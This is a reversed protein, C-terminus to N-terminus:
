GPLTSSCYYMVDGTFETHSRLQCYIPWSNDIGAYGLKPLYDNGCLFALLVFDLGMHFTQNKPSSIKGSSAQVTSTTGENRTKKDTTKRRAELMLETRLSAASCVMYHPLTRFRNIGRENRRGRSTENASRHKAKGDSAKGSNETSVCVDEEVANASFDRNKPRNGRAAEDEPEREEVVSVNVVKGKAGTSRSRSRKHSRRKDSGRTYRGGGNNGSTSSQAQTALTATTPSTLVFCNHPSSLALLLLDADSGLVMHMESPDEDLRKRMTKILKLEGEGPVQKPLFYIPSTLSSVVDHLFITRAYRRGRSLLNYM